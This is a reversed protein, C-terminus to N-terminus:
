LSEPKYIAGVFILTGTQNDRIACLYPRGVLMLTRPVGAFVVATVGAAVTGDEDVRIKAKHLVLGIPTGPTLGMPAFDAGETFAPGMGLSILPENLTLSCEAQFRPLALGLETPRMSNIWDQWSAANLGNIVDALRTKSVIVYMSMRNNAGYPLSVMQFQDTELYPVTITQGMM